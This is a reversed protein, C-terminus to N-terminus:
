RTRLVWAGRYGLLRLLTLIVVVPLLLLLLVAAAAAAAAGHWGGVEEFGKAEAAVGERVTGGFFGAM